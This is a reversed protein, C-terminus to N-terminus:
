YICYFKYKRFCISNYSSEFWIGFLVKYNTNDFSLIGEM